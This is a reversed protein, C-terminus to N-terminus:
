NEFVGCDCAGINTRYQSALHILFACDAAFAGEEAASLEEEESMTETEPFAAGVKNQIHTVWVGLEPIVSSRPASTGTPDCAADNHDGVIPSHGNPNASVVQVSGDNPTGFAAHALLETKLNITQLGNPTVRCGCCSVLEQSADYVYILACLDGGSILNTTPDTTAQGGRNTIRVTAAPAGSTTNNAFYNTSFSDYAQASAVGSVMACVVAIALVPLITCLAKKM